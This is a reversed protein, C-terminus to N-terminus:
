RTTLPGEPGLADGWPPRERDFAHRRGAEFPAGLGGTSARRSGLPTVAVSRLTRRRRPPGDELPM